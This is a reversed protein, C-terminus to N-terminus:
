PALFGRAKLFPRGDGLIFAVFARAATLDQANKLAVIPYIIDPTVDSPFPFVNVQPAIQPVIDTSYVVGADGEGLAIKAVVAKENMEDSVVNREIAQAYDAPYGHGAMKAFAERAYIGVPEAKEALVVKVGPKAISAFGDVHGPNAKPTILLIRNKAFVRPPGDALGADTVRRVQITNASAFVDAPAGNLLQTALLDSGAFNLTATTGTATAFAPNAATFAERLSGAAYVTISGRAEAPRVCAAALYGGVLALATARNM